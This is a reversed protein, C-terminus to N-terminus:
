ALPRSAEMWMRCEHFGLAEYFRLGVTNGAPTHLEIQTMGWETLTTMCANMMARAIGLRRYPESVGLM